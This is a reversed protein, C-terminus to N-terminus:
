IVSVYSGPFARSRRCPALGLTVSVGYYDADPFAPCMAFPTLHVPVILLLTSTIDFASRGLIRGSSLRTSRFPALVTRPPASPFPSAAPQGDSGFCVSSYVFGPAFRTGRWGGVGSFGLGWRSM